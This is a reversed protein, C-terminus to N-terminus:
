ALGPSKIRTEPSKPEEVAPKFKNRFLVGRDEEKDYNDICHEEKLPNIEMDATDNFMEINNAYIDTIPLIPSDEGQRIREILKSYRPIIFTPSDENPERESDIPPLQVNDGMFIIKADANKYKYIMKLLSRSIMSCEDIVMLYATAIPPHYKPNNWVFSDPKFELEGNDKVNQKMGLLKAVTVVDCEGQLFNRLVNKAAHSITSAVVDSGFLTFGTSFNDRYYRIVRGIVTSKGTGGRGILLYEKKESGLFEIMDDIAKRQEENAHIGPALLYKDDGLKTM